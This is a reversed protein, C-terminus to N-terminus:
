GNDLNYFPTVLQPLPVIPPIPSHQWNAENNYRYYNNNFNNNYYGGGSGNYYNNPPQQQIWSGGRGGPYPQTQYNFPFM